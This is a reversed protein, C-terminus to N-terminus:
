YIRDSPIGCMCNLICCWGPFSICFFKPSYELCNLSAVWGCLSCLLSATCSLVTEWQKVFYTDWPVVTVWLLKQVRLFEPKALTDWPAVTVWPSQQVRVFEPKAPPEFDWPNNRTGNTCATSTSFRLRFHTKFRDCSSNWLSGNRPWAGQKLKKKKKKFEDSGMLLKKIARRLGFNM